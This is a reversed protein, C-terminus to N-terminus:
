PSVQSQGTGRSSSVSRILAMLDDASLDAAAFTETHGGLPHMDDRSLFPRLGRRRIATITVQEVEYADTGVPFTVTGHIQWGFAAYGVLRSTAAGTIGVKVAAGRPHEPHHLAYVVAPAVSDFGGPTSGAGGQGSVVNNFPTQRWRVRGCLGSM